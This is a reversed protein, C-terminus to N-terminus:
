EEDKYTNTGLQIQYYVYAVIGMTCLGLGIIEIFNIVEFNGTADSAHTGSKNAPTFPQTRLTRLGCTM